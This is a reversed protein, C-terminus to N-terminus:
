APHGKLVPEIARLVERVSCVREGLQGHVAKIGCCTGKRCPRAAAVASCVDSIQKPIHEHPSVCNCATSSVSVPREAKSRSDLPLACLSRMYQKHQAPQLSKVNLMVVPSGSAAPALYTSLMPKLGPAKTKRLSVSPFM